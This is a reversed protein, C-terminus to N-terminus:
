LTLNKCAGRLVDFKAGVAGWAKGRIFVPAASGVGWGHHGSGVVVCGGLGGVWCM